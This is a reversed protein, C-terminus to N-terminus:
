VVSIQVKNQQVQNSEHHEQEPESESEQEQEPEPETRRMAFYGILITELILAAILLDMVTLSITVSKVKKQIYNVIDVM